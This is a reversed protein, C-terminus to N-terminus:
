PCTNLPLVQLSFSHYITVALLEILVNYDLLFPRRKATSIKSDHKQLLSTTNQDLNLQFINWHVIYWSNSIISRRWVVIQTLSPTSYQPMYVDNVFICIINSICQHCVFLSELEALWTSRQNPQLQAGFRRTDQFYKISKRQLVPDRLMMSVYDMLIFVCLWFGFGKIGLTSNAFIEDSCTSIVICVIIANRM